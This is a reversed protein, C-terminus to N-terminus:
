LQWPSFNISIIHKPDKVKTHFLISAPTETENKFSRDSVARASGQIIAAAIPCGDDVVNVSQVSWKDLEKRQDLAGLISCSTSESQPTVGPPLISVGTIRVGDSTPSISAQVGDAPSTPSIKEQHLFRLSHLCQVHSLIKSFVRWAFDAFHHVRDEAVLYLWNWKAL